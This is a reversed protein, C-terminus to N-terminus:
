ALESENSIFSKHLEEWTSKGLYMRQGRLVTIKDGM